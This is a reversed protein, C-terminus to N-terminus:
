EAWACDYYYRTVWQPTSPPESDPDGYDVRAFRRGEADYYFLSKGVKIWDDEIPADQSPAGRQTWSLTKVVRGDEVFRKTKTFRSGAEVENRFESRKIVVLGEDVERYTWTTPSTSEMGPRQSRTIRCESDYSMETGGIETRNGLSDYEFTTTKSDTDSEVNEIRTLRERDDFDYRKEVEEPMGPAVRTDLQGDSDFIFGFIGSPLGDLPEGDQRDQWSDYDGLIRVPEGCDNRDIRFQQLSNIPGEHIRQYEVVRCLSGFEPYHSLRQPIFRHYCRGEAEPRPSCEESAGPPMWDGADINPPEPLDFPFADRTTTSDSDVGANSQDMADSQGSGFNWPPGAKPDQCGPLAVLACVTCAITGVLNTNFRPM